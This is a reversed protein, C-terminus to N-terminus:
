KTRGEGWGVYEEEIGEEDAWCGGGLAVKFPMYCGCGLDSGAYPRCKKVEPDYIMCRSCKRLKVSFGVGKERNTIGKLVLVGLRLWDGLRLRGREEKLVKWWEAYRVARFGLIRM